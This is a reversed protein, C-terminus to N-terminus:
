KPDIPITLHILLPNLLLEISQNLPIIVTYQAIIMIGYYDNVDIPIIM